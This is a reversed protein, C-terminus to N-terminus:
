LRPLLVCGTMAMLRHKPRARSAVPAAVCTRLVREFDPVTGFVQSSKAVLCLLRYLPKGIPLRIGGTHM